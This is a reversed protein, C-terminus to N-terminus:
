QVSQSFHFIFSNRIWVLYQPHIYFVYMVMKVSLDSFDIDMHM